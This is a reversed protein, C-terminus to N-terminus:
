STLSEPVHIIGEGLNPDAPDMHVFGLEDRVDTPHVGKELMRAALGSVLPTAFSTGSWRAYGTKHTTKLVPGLLGYKWCNSRCRKWPVECSAQGQEGLLKGLCGPSGRYGDGGPAAIDGRNSFCARQRNYNSAAVGIVFPLAAPIEPEAIHNLGSGNGSAAVVVMGQCYALALAINLALSDGPLGLACLLQSQPIGLSLSIVGWRADSGSAVTDSTFKLLASILVFLNGRAYRDLVRYLHIDSEEAVAHVLGAASLGHDSLDPLSVSTGDAAAPPDPPRPLLYQDFVEPHQVTLVMTPEVWDIEAQVRNQDEVTIGAPPDDVSWVFPSTDFVGVPVQRGPHKATAATEGVRGIQELAWQNRFDAPTADAGHRTFPSGAVTYPSGAVTYPSGAVTYPYGTLLNADAHVCRGRRGRRLRRVAEPVPPGEEITYLDMVWEKDLCDLDPLMLWKLYDELRECASLIDGANGLSATWRDVEDTRAPQLTLGLDRDGALERVHDVPGTLV